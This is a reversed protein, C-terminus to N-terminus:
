LGQLVEMLKSMEFEDPREHFQQLLLRRKAHISDQQNEPMFSHYFQQLRLVLLQAETVSLKGDTSGNSSPTIDGRMLVIGHSDSLDTYHTLILSPQAFTQRLKYEALPTYMVITPPLTSPILGCQPKLLHTLDPETPPRVFDWQLYQMEFSVDKPSSEGASVTPVKALPIVFSPYQKALKIMEQYSGTPIVAGLRPPSSSSLHYATWLKTIESASESALKHVDIIRDLPKIPSSYKKSIRSIDIKEQSPLPQKKQADSAKLKERARKILDEYVKRQRVRDAEIKDGNIKKLEELDRLGTEDLKKQLKEAYKEQIPRQGASSTRKPTCHVDALNSRVSFVRHSDRLVQLCCTPCRLLSSDAGRALRLFRQHVTTM